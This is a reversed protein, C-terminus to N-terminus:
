RRAVLDSVADLAEVMLGVVAQELLKFNGNKAHRDLGREIGVFEISGEIPPDTFNGICSFGNAINV